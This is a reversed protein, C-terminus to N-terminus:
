WTSIQDAPTTRYKINLPQWGKLASYYINKEIKFVFKNYIELFNYMLVRLSFGLLTSSRMANIQLPLTSNLSSAQSTTEELAWSRTTWHKVRSGVIRIVADLAKSCGHITLKKSWLLYNPYNTSIRFFYDYIYLIVVLFM